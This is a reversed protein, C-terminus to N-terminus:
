GGCADEWGFEAGETHGSIGRAQSLPNGVGVEDFLWGDNLPQVVQNLLEILLVIDLINPKVQLAHLEEFGSPLLVLNVSPLTGLLNPPLLFDEPLEVESLLNLSFNHAEGDVAKLLVALLLFM